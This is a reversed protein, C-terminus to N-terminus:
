CPSGQMRLWTRDETLQCGGLAWVCVIAIGVPRGRGQRAKSSIVSVSPSVQSSHSAPTGHASGAPHKPVTEWASWAAPLSSGHSETPSHPQAATPVRQAGVGSGRRQVGQSTPQAAQGAHQAHQAGPVTHQAQQWPYQQQESKQLPAAVKPPGAHHACGM